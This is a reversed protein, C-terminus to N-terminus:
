QVQHVHDKRRPKESPVDWGSSLFAEAASRGADYLKMAREGSLDFETTGVSRLM